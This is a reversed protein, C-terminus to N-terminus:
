LCGCSGLLVWLLKFPVETNRSGCMVTSLLLPAVGPTVLTVAVALNLSSSCVGLPLLLKSPPFPLLPPPPLLRGLLRLRLRRLLEPLLTGESGSLDLPSLLRAELREDSPPKESFYVISKYFINPNNKLFFTILYRM